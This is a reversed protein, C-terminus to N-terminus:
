QLLKLVVLELFLIVIHLDKHYKGFAKNSWVRAIELYVKIM